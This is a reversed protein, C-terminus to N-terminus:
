SPPLEEDALTTAEPVAELRERPIPQGSVESIGYTGEEMRQLAREIQELTERDLDETGLSQERETLLAGEDSADGVGEEDRVTREVARSREEIRALVAARESELRERFTKLDDPTLM